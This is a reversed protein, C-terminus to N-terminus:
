ARPARRRRRRPRTLGDLYLTELADVLEGPGLRGRPTYWGDLTNLIAFLSFAAVSPDVARFLGRRQGARVVRRVLELYAREVAMVRARRAPSLYRIQGFLVALTHPQELCLAAHTRLVGRLRAVPDGGRAVAARTRRLLERMGDDCIRYLLEDKDRVHYYIGPKSVRARHALQALSANTFGNAAFLAEAARQVTAWRTRRAM